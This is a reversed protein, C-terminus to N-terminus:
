EEPALVPTSALGMATCGMLGMAGKRLGKGQIREPNVIVMHKANSSM